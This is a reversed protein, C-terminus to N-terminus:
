FSCFYSVHGLKHQVEFNNCYKVCYKLKPSPCSCCKRTISQYYKWIEDHLPADQLVKNPNDKGWVIMNYTDASGTLHINSILPHTCLKEGEEAGGYVVEM